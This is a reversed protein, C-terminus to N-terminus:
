GYFVEETAPTTETHRQEAARMKELAKRYDIPVVKVFRGLIDSWSNLVRQAQKSQTWKYHKEILEKLLKKDENHWISELEVMDLNCLTDFLQMEDLVYAIGGSMGAAFNCGTKGLVVVTGGTMYECGHDGLGEVVAVAGSNRVAFREGAMGNIFVEGKIAGYLLTNGVIINEQAAFPSDEPTKVVIRGGSLGKGLYDNSQGTLKLTIGPALFAGFSQGASGAFALEITDDPLGKPGHKRVIYNSIITGVTRNVNRIPMELKAKQGSDIASKIKELIQWDLHDALKDPQPNIKRIARGDSTDPKYFIASFDLGKAKYHEIAKRTCLMDVRGVMDEFKKFGSQAMIQRTEEAAFFMFREVYEPKGAFRDRLEKDQTGIGFPCAGEHCKRLLTCGLTVLAATGFGFREAGLLAGIVVDRGTKMQGDVQVSIRDRLNNGVLVQQTEALGLEWPCGTHKISSLPSAGTGGDHGSILVEDANGKAVGAAITGVGVEAVLKVSVRVGPNSCKLDYILQALDEISYIDHHPPPSILTVGPTSYRLKAIEETVKHGPLQGGEGPKAGQAMKIQLEAAHSLYNLTVGFRGSAVQKIACNRSIQGKKEIYRSEDEGGEGTNSMAGIRNMAIALCEHAEKSISGHSM